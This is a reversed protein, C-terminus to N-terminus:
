GGGGGKVFPGVLCRTDTLSRGSGSPACDSPLRKCVFHTLTLPMLPEVSSTRVGLSEGVGECGGIM